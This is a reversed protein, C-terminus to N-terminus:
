GRITSTLPEIRKRNRSWILTVTSLRSSLPGATADRQIQAPSSARPYRGREAGADLQSADNGLAHRERIQSISRVVHPYKQRPGASRSGAKHLFLGDPQMNGVTGRHGSKDAHHAYARTGSTSERSAAFRSPLAPLRRTRSEFSSTTPRKGGCASAPGSGPIICQWVCRATGRRRQCDLCLPM